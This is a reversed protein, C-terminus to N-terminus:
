NNNLTGVREGPPSIESASFNAGKRSHDDIIGGLNYSPSDLM